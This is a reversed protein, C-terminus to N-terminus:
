RVKQAFENLPKVQAVLLIKLEEITDAVKTVGHGVPSAMYYTNHAADVIKYVRFQYYGGVCLTDVYTKTLKGM